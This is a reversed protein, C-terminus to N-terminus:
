GLTRKSPTLVIFSHSLFKLIKLSSILNGTFETDKLHFIPLVANNHTKKETLRRMFHRLEKSNEMEDNSIENLFTEARTTKAIRINM